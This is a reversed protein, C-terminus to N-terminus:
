PVIFVRRSKAVAETVEAAATARTPAKIVPPAARTPWAPACGVLVVVDVVPGVEVVVPAEVVVVVGDEVVDDDVLVEVVSGGVVVVV